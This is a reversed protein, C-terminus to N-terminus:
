FDVFVIALLTALMKSTILLPPNEFLSQKNTLMFIKYLKTDHYLIRNPFSNKLRDCNLIYMFKLM